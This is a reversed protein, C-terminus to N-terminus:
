LHRAAGYLHGWLSRPRRHTKGGPGSPDDIGADAKAFIMVPYKTYWNMVYQVPLGQARGLVVQDGSGVMFHFADTGVLKLYDNEFGYDLSVEMGEEAFFGKDIGVYFPAFQVNPIFGVGLTVPTPADPDSSSTDVGPAVTSCGSLILTLILIVAIYKKTM